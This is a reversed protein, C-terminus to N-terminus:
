SSWHLCYESPDKKALVYEITEITIDLAAIYWNKGNADDKGDKDIAPEDRIVMYVAPMFENEKSYSRKSGSIVALVKAGDGLFYRGDRNSYWNSNVTAFSEKQGRSFRETHREQEIAFKAMAQEKTSVLGAPDVFPNPGVDIIKVAGNKDLFAQYEVRVQHARELAAKWDPTFKYEDKSTDKFITYLDKGISARLINNIGGDNYSSRLYGVKFYHKPHTKSDVAKVEKETTGEPRPNAEDWAEQRKAVLKYQGETMKDGDGLGLETRLSTYADDHAQNQRNEFENLTKLNKCRYLYVDLGM